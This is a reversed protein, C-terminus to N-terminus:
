ESIVQFNSPVDASGSDTIPVAGARVLITKAKGNENIYYKELGPFTCMLVKAATAKESEGMNVLDETMSQGYHVMFCRIIAQEEIM